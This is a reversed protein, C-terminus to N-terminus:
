SCGSLAMGYVVWIRVTMRGHKARNRCRLKQIGAEVELVVVMIWRLMLSGKMRCRRWGRIWGSVAWRSIWIQVQFPMAM